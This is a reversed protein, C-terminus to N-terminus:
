KSFKCDVFQFEIRNLGGGDISLLIPQLTSNLDISIYSVSKSFEAKMTTRPSISLTM